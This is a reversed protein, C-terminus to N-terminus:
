PWALVLLALLTVWFWNLREARLAPSPAALNSRLVQGTMNLWAIRCPTLFCSAGKAGAPSLSFSKVGEFSIDGDSRSHFVLRAFM